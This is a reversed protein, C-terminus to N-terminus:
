ALPHKSLNELLARLREGHVSENGFRLANYLRTFEVAGSGFSSSALAGAFELPTQSPGKKLGRRELIKLFELYALTAEGSSLTRRRWGFKLRWRLRAARLWPVHDAVLFVGLGGLFILALAILATMHRACARGAHEAWGAGRDRLSHFWSSAHARVQRSSADVQRALMTQHTFDYNLIWENWFLSAADLYDDFTNWGGEAAQAEGAPTPDFPAWGYQPFYVEVWSHADRARVIFDHGVRNYAGTEFGNVVRAPVQLTRLMLTMAAAFYACYGKRSKFLFSAIPHQPEILPPDLTYGFNQRLYNQIALARDYDNSEQQTIEQALQAIRPDLNPLALYRLRIVPPEQSPARRLEAPSPLGADSLITYEVPSDGHPPIHLSGTEDMTIAPLRGTIERPQAAAFLVDTSIPSLFVQYRLVRRPHRNWGDGLPVVFRESGIRLLPAQGTNENYWMSGTFSTLGIGRWYVGQFQSPSGDIKVRMVVLNSRKIRGIEGLRVSESFGTVNQTSLALSSFYATHYRPIMFFLVAALAAIGLTMEFTTVLLSNEIAVRNLAPQRYPGQSPQEATEIGRKIDYSIFMSIAFIVYLTLGALYITNVTLIASVLMMLFSLAALYGYDRYRRASFIKMVTIFLILHVTASLMRNMFGPGSSFWFLDLAYFFVYGVALRTVTQAELRFGSEGRAYGLLKVGLALSFLVISLTDLKGTSALTLFSAGLMLLLSIEFYRQISIHKQKDTRSAPVTTRSTM